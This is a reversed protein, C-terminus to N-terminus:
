YLQAPRTQGFASVEQRLTASNKVLSTNFIIERKKEQNSKQERKNNPPLNEGPDTVLLRRTCVRRGKWEQGANAKKSFAKIEGEGGGM